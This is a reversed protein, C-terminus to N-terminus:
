PLAHASSNFAIRSASTLPWPLVSGPRWRQQLWGGGQPGLCCGHVAQLCAAPGAGGHAARGRVQLQRVMAKLKTNESRLDCLTVQHGADAEAMASQMENVQRPPPSTPPWDELM